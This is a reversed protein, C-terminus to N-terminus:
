SRNLNPAIASIKGDGGINFRCNKRGDFEIEMRNRYKVATRGARHFCVALCEEPTLTPCVNPHTEGITGQAGAVDDNHTSVAGSSLPFVTTATKIRDGNMFFSLDSAVLASSLLEKTSRLSQTHMSLGKNTISVRPAQAPGMDQLTLDTLMEAIFRKATIKNLIGESEDVLTSATKLQSATLLSLIKLKCIIELM